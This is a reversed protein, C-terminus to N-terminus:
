VRFVLAACLTSFRRFRARSGRTKPGEAVVTHLNESLCDERPPPQLDPNMISPMTCLVVVSKKSVSAKNRSACGAPIIEPARYRLPGISSSVGSACGGAAFLPSSCADAFRGIPVPCGRPLSTSLNSRLTLFLALFNGRSLVLARAFIPREALLFGGNPPYAPSRWIAYLQPTRLLWGTSLAVPWLLVGYGGVM